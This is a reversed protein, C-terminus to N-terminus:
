EDGTIDLRICDIVLKPGYTKIARSIASDAEKIYDFQESERLNALSHLCKAVVVFTSPHGFCTFATGIIKIIHPWANHYQYSLGTELHTFIKHLTSKSMESSSNLDDVLVDIDARICQELAANLCKAAAFHVKAHSSCFAQMYRQVLHPLHSLCLQKNLRNLSRIASDMVALWVIMQPGSQESPQYDYLAKKNM